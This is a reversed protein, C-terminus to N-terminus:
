ITEKPIKHHHEIIEFFEKIKRPIKKETEKNNLIIHNAITSSYATKNEKLCDLLAKKYGRDGDSYDRFVDSFIKQGCCSCIEKGPKRKIFTKDKTQIHHEIVGHGLEEELAKILEEHYNESVLYREFNDGTPLYVVKSKQIDSEEGYITEISENLYDQVRKEGDSFIYVPIDFIKSFKLFPKYKGFGGVSIVNFGLEYVEKKFEEKFFTPISQEETEGECLIIGESFLLEGRSRLIEQKIKRLEDFELKDNVSKIITKGIKKTIFLIETLDTQSVISPSHTSIFVQGTLSKMQNYINRQSNPHLHAEPEELLIIPYYCKDNQERLKVQWDVYSLLTLFTVWSRTGMGHSNMSFIDSHEDQFNIALNKGLENIKQTVPHILIKSNESDLTKSIMGLKDTLHKLIDSENVIKSNIEGLEKEFDLVLNQDIKIDKVLRAFYSFRDKMDAVIDRRADLYFVPLAEFFSVGPPRRHYDEYSIISNSESPWDLLIKRDIEFEGKTRNFSVIARIPLTQNSESDLSVYTGFHMKWASSFELSADEDNLLMASDPKILVDVIIKRTSWDELTDTLSRFVDDSSVIFRTDFVLRLASLFATKGVNNAGILVTGSSPMCTFDASELSRFNRIRIDSIFLSM